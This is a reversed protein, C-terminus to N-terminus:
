WNYTFTASVWRPKGYMNQGCGCFAPTPVAYVRYEEDTLNKVSLKVQWDDDGSAYAIHANSVVHGDEKSVPNNDIDFYQEGTYAFDGQLSMMGEFMPWEYRAMGNFTVKPALALERDRILAGGVFPRESDIDEANTDLLGVGFMFAWGDWPTTTLEAEFGKVTADKNRAVNSFGQFSFAQYDQYDYYFLAANFRAAGDFLTSKLGAEYSTLDEEDFPIQADSFGLNTNFGAAKVGTSIGGYLMVDETAHWDLEVRYTVNSKDHKALSGVTEESFDFIVPSGPTGDDYNRLQYKSEEETYRLGTILNWQDNFAYEGHAFVAWSNVKLNNVARVSPQGIFINFPEPASLDTSTGSDIDRHFYYFGTTWQLKDYQGALRIEESWQINNVPNDVLVGPRPGMDTDEGYTKHVYEAATISTLDMAGLDYDVKVLAGGTDLILFPERNNDAAHVDGDTDRYGYCDTDLTSLVGACSFNEGGIPVLIKTAGDEAYDVVTHQYPYAVQDARTGHASALIDLKETPSFLLQGRLAYMDTSAGDDVGPFRSKSYGDHNHYLYSFRGSLTDTLGGGVAGELRIQNYEGVTIETYANFDQTPKRTIFHVLGASANRGFLTGQPGKLVEAREMDFLQFGLGALTSQYVDDIYVAAGSESIESFDNLGVGRIIFSANNGEGFASVSSLGPTQAVLDTTSLVGLDKMQQGSFATVAVGVDQLNQERKQATVVVEEMVAANAQLSILGALPLLTLINKRSPIQNFWAM